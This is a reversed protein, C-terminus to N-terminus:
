KQNKRKELEVLAEFQDEEMTFRKSAGSEDLGWKVAEWVVGAALGLGPLITCITIMTSITGGKTLASTIEEETEKDIELGYKREAHQLHKVVYKAVKEPLKVIVSETQKDVYKEIDVRGSIEDLMKEYESDTMYGADRYNQMAIVVESVATAPKSQDSGDIHTLTDRVNQSMIAMYDEGSLMGSKRAEGAADLVYAKQAAAREDPDEYSAFMENWKAPEIGLLNYAGSIDTIAGTFAQGIQKSVEPLVEAETGNVKAQAMIEAAGSLTPNISLGSALDTMQAKQGGELQTMIADVNINPNGLAMTELKNRVTAKNTGDYWGEAVATQLLNYTDTNMGSAKAAAEIAQLEDLAMRDNHLQKATNYWDLASQREADFEERAAQYLALQQDDLGEMVQRGAEEAALTAYSSGFGGTNAVARSYARGSALRAEKEAQQQLITYLPSEKANYVFKRNGWEALSALADELMRMTDATTLKSNFEKETLAGGEPSLNDLSTTDIGGATDLTTETQETTQNSKETVNMSRLFQKRRQMAGAHVTSVPRVSGPSQSVTRNLPSVAMQGGYKDKYYEDLSYPKKSVAM